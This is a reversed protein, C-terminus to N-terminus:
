SLIISDIKSTRNKERLLVQLFTRNQNRLRNPNQNQTVNEVYDCIAELDDFPISELRIKKCDSNKFNKLSIVKFKFIFLIRSILRKKQLMHMASPSALIVKRKAIM